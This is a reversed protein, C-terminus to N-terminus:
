ETSFDQQLASCQEVKAAQSQRGTSWARVSRRRRSTRHGCRCRRLPGCGHRDTAPCDPQHGPPATDKGCDPTGSSTSNRRRSSWASATGAANRRRASRGGVSTSAAARCGEARTRPASAALRWTSGARRGFQEQPHEALVTSAAATPQRGQRVKRCSPQGLGGVLGIWRDPPEDSAVRERIRCKNVPEGAVGVGRHAPRHRGARSQRHVSDDFQEVVGLQGLRRRRVRGQRDLHHALSGSRPRSSRVPTM